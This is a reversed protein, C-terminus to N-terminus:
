FHSFILLNVLLTQYVPQPPLPAREKVIIRQYIQQQQPAEDPLRVTLSHYFPQPQPFCQQQPCSM